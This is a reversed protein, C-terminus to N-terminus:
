PNFGLHLKRDVDYSCCCLIWAMHTVWAVTQPLVLEKDWQGLGLILGADEYMSVTNMIRWLM